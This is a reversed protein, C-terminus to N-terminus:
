YGWRVIVIGSGGVAGSYGSREGFGGGGGGGTNATGATGGHYPGTSKEAYGGNGGGGAGGPPIYNPQYYADGNGGAGGGAYLTGNSDGFARTTTGQGLGSGNPRYGQINNYPTSGNSGGPVGFGSKDSDAVGGGGGGSGGPAGNNAYRSMTSSGGGISYEGISSDGGYTTPRSTEEDAVSATAGAGVVVAFQQGPTVNITVTKTYGGGGGGGGNYTKQDYGNEEYVRRGGGGGGGVLFAQITRVNAPVTFTGSSTFNQQGRDTTACTTQMYNSFIDGASCTAYSWIRFYYTTGPTLGGIIVSSTSGLTYTSGTGLYVRGDSAHTPYGGTKACIVVGSYPGKSPWKWTAIVQDTSYAAVSFSVVSSVTMAGTIKQGKVYATYGQRIYAAIATADSTATGSLGFASQGQMLKAATLQGVSAATATPIGFLTNATIYGPDSNYRIEFRNTGDTNTSIYAEDGPIVKTSNGTAHQITARNTLHKMTGTGVDDDTDAGLYTYNELVQPSQATTDESAAIGGGGGTILIDAM